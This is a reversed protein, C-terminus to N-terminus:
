RPFTPKSENKERAAAWTQLFFTKIPLVRQTETKAQEKVPWIIRAQRKSRKDGNRSFLQLPSSKVARGKRTGKRSAQPRRRQWPGLSKEQIGKCRRWTSPCNPPPGYWRTGAPWTPGAASPTHERSLIGPKQHCFPCTGAGSKLLNSLPM